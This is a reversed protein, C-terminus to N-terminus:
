TDDGKTPTFRGAVYAGIVTGLHVLTTGVFAPTLLDTWTTIGKVEQGILGLTMGLAALLVVYGAAKKNVAGREDFM